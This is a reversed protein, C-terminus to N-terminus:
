DLLRLKDFVLDVPLQEDLANLLSARSGEFEMDARVFIRGVSAYYDRDLSKSRLPFGLESELAEREQKIEDIQQGNIALNLKSPSGFAIFPKGSFVQATKTTAARALLSQLYRTRQKPTRSVMDGSALEASSIIGQVLEVNDWPEFHAGKLNHHFASLAAAVREASTSVLRRGIIIQDGSFQSDAM